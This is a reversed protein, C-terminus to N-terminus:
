RPPSASALQRAFSKGPTATAVGLLETITAGCDAFSARVGLDAPAVIAGAVLLPVRERSHDTSPTTPDNGHDATIVLVQDDALVGLLSPLWRDFTELATAYGQPDNRHGFNQDFDVLNAFVLGSSIAETEELLAAMGDENSRTPRSSTIGKGAFIDSIKGVGRVEHGSLAIEELVMPSPPLVSFDHRDSTRTFPDEATGAGSFPRAIVRGVEHPGRMVDRAIRCLEYQRELPIVGVHAAIQFVSDASTYVIPRGTRVHEAGLRGIIETGSAVENGMVRLEAREEFRAIVEPPFGEPYTPFPRELQIGVLEWHGTTTDKGPSVETMCGFAGEPSAEPPVGEIEALSGLGLSGLTPLALGGVAEAIHPITASGEDGFEAADPAGGIGASDLVVLIVSRCDRAM